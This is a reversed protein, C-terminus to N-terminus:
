VSKLKNLKLKRVEKIDVEIFHCWQPCSFIYDRCLINSQSFYCKRCCINEDNKIIKCKLYIKKDNLEYIEDNIIDSMNKNPFNKYFKKM